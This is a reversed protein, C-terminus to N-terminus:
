RIEGARTSSGAARRIASVIWEPRQELDQFTWRVVAAGLARLRDERRKERIVDERTGYKVLGDAEGIVNLSPWWMDAYGILGEDDYFAHQLIPEPLGREVFTLRSFTELVTQAGPRARELAGLLKDRHGLHRWTEVLSVIRAVDTGQWLAADFLATQWRGSELTVATSLAALGPEVVPVGLVTASRDADVPGTTVHTRPLVLRHRSPQHLTREDMGSRRVLALQSPVPFPLPYGLVVASSAGFAWAPERASAIAAALDIRHRTAEDASDLSETLTYIGHRLRVLEGRRIMASQMADTVGLSLLDRRRYVPCETRSPALRSVAARVQADILASM